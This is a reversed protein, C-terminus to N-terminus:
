DLIRHVDISSDSHYEPRDDNEHYDTSSLLTLRGCEYNRKRLYNKWSLQSAYFTHCSSMAINLWGGGPICKICPFSADANAAIRAPHRNKAPYGIVGALSIASCKATCRGCTPPIISWISSSIADNADTIPALQVPTLAMVAVDPGPKLRICSFIPYANMVSVGQTTTSIWLAPGLVPCAVFHPWPSTM